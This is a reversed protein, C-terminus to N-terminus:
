EFSITGDVSFVPVGYFNVLFENSKLYPSKAVSVTESFLPSLINLFERVKDLDGEAYFIVVPPLVAVDAFYGTFKEANLGAANFIGVFEDALLERNADGVHPQFRINCPYKKNMGELNTEVGKLLIPHLPRFRKGMEKEEIVKQIELNRIKQDREGLQKRLNPIIAIQSWVSWIVWLLLFGGIAIRWFLSM